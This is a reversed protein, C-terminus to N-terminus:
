SDRKDVVKEAKKGESEGKVTETSLIFRHVPCDRHWAFSTGDPCDFLVADKLRINRCICESTTEKEAM